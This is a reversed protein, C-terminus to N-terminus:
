NAAGRAGIEANNLWDSKPARPDINRGTELASHARAICAWGGHRQANNTPAANTSNCCMKQDAM